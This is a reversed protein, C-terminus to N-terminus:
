DPVRPTAEPFRTPPMATLAPHAEVRNFENKLIQGREVIPMGVSRQVTEM